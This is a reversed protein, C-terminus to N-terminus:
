VPPPTPPPPLNKRRDIETNIHGLVKQNLTIQAEIPATSQGSRSAHQMDAQLGGIAGELNKQSSILAENSTGGGITTNGGPAGQVGLRVADILDRQQAGYNIQSPVDQAVKGGLNDSAKIRTYDKVIAAQEDPTSNSMAYAVGSSAQTAKVEDTAGTFKVKRAEALESYSRITGNSKRLEATLGVGFAKVDSFRDATHQDAEAARDGGMRRDHDQIDRYQEEGKQDVVVDRAADRAARTEGNTAQDVANKLIQDRTWGRSAAAEKLKIKQIERQEQEHKNKKEAFMADGFDRNADRRWPNLGAGGFARRKRLKSLPGDGQMGEQWGRQRQADRRAKKSKKNLAYKSENDKFNRARDVLGKGKDNLMGTVTGMVGTIAKFAMPLLLYPLIMALLMLFATLFDEAGNGTGGDQVLNGGGTQGIVSSVVIGSGLLVMAYPYVLLLQTFAKWWKKFIGEGGPFAWFMFAVPSILVLLILLIRRLLFVIFAIGVAILIAAMIPLLVVIMPSFTVWALAGIGVLIPGKFAIALNGGAEAASYGNQRAIDALTGSVEGSLPYIMVQQIGLGLYNISSIVVSCIVWSLNAAIAAVVIKPLTKKVTYNSFVGIDLATSVIMVLMAVVLMINVVNLVNRWLRQLTVVNKVGAAAACDADEGSGGGIQDKCDETYATDASDVDKTPDFLMLRSVAVNIFDILGSLMDSVGCIFWELPNDMLNRATDFNKGVSEAGDEVIDGLKDGVIPNAVEILFGLAGGVVSGAKEGEDHKDYCPEKKAEEESEADQAYVVSDGHNISLLFSPAVFNFFMLIAFASAIVRKHLQKM